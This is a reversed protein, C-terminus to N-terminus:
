AARRSGQGIPPLIVVDHTLPQDIRIRVKALDRMSLALDELRDRSRGGYFPNSDADLLRRFGALRRGLDGM